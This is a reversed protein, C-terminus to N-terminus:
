ADKKLTTMFMQCKAADSYNYYSMLRNYAQNREYPDGSGDYSEM